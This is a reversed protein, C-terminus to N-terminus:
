MRICPAHRSCSVCTCAWMCAPRSGEARVVVEDVEEDADDEEDESEFEVAVGIDDDLADAGAGPEGEGDGPADVSFDTILKGVAVLNAFKDSPLEGLLGQVEKEKEPDQAGRVAASVPRAACPPRRAGVRLGERAAQAHAASRCACGVWQRLFM